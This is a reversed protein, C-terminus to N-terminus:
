HHFFIVLYHSNPTALIAKIIKNVMLNKEPLVLTILSNPDKIQSELWCNSDILSLNNVLQQLLCVVSEQTDKSALCVLKSTNIARQM